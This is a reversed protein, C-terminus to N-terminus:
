ILKDLLKQMVLFITSGCAVVMGWWISSILHAKIARAKSKCIGAYGNVHWWQKIKGIM